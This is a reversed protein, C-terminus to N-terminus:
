CDSRKERKWRLVEMIKGLPSFGRKKIYDAADRPPFATEIIGDKSFIAIWQIGQLNGSIAYYREIGYEYSYVANNDDGVLEGILANYEELSIHESLHGMAKRKELYQLDKGPKWRIRSRLAELAFAAESLYEQQAEGRKRV